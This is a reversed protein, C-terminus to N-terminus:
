CSQCNNVACPTLCDGPGEYTVNTWITEAGGLLNMSSLYRGFVTDLYINQVSDCATRVSFYSDRFDRATKMDLYQNALNTPTEKALKGNNYPTYGEVEPAFSTLTSFVVNAYPAKPGVYLWGDPMLNNEVIQIPFENSEFIFNAYAGRSVNVMYKGDSQPTYVQTANGPISPVLTDMVSGITRASGMMIGSDNEPMIPGYWGLSKIREMRMRVREFADQLDRKQIKTTQSAGQETPECCYVKPVLENFFYNLDLGFYREVTRPNTNWESWLRISGGIGGYECCRTFTTFSTIFDAPIAGSVPEVFWPNRVTYPTGGFTATVQEDSLAFIKDGAQPAYTAPMVTANGLDRFDAAVLGVTKSYADYGRGIGVFAQIQFEVGNCNHTCADIEQSPNARVVVYNEDSTLLAGGEIRVVVGTSLDTGSQVGIIQAIEGNGDLSNHLIQDRRVVAKDIAEDITGITAFVKAITDKNSFGPFAKEALQKYFNSVPMNALDTLCEYLAFTQKKPQMSYEIYRVNMIGKINQCSPDDRGCPTMDLNTCTNGYGARFNGRQISGRMQIDKAGTSSDEVVKLDATFPINKYRMDMIKKWPSRQKYYNADDYEIKAEALVPKLLSNQVGLDGTVSNDIQHASEDLLLGNLVSTATDIFQDADRM